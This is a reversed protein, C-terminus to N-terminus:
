KQIERKLLTLSKGHVYKCRSVLKRPSSHSAVLHDGCICCGNGCTTTIFLGAPDAGNHLAWALRRPSVQIDDIKVISYFNNGYIECPTTPKSMSTKGTKEQKEIPMNEYRKFFGKKPRM